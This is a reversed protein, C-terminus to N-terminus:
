TLPHYSVIWLAAPLYTRGLRHGRDSARRFLHNVASLFLQNMDVSYGLPRFRGQCFRPCGGFIAALIRKVQATADAKRVALWEIRVVHHKGELEVQIFFNM